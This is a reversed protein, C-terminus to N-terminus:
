LLGRQLMSLITCILQSVYVNEVNATESRLHSISTIPRKTVYLLCECYLLQCVMWYGLWM